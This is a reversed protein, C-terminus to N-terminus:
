AGMTSDEGTAVGTAVFINGEDDRVGQFERVVGPLRVLGLINWKKSALGSLIVIKNPPNEAAVMLVTATADFRINTFRSQLLFFVFLIYFNRNNVVPIIM